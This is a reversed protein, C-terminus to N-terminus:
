RIKRDEVNYKYKERLKCFSSVVLTKMGVQLWLARSKLRWSKEKDLLLARKKPELEKVKLKM